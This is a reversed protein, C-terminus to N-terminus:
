GVPQWTPPETNLEDLDSQPLATAQPLEPEEPESQPQPQPTYTKGDTGTVPAPSLKRDGSVEQRITERNTGTASAIARVSMGIERMSAVVEQREERPLRIRSTGVIPAPTDSAKLKSLTGHVTGVSAGTASSIAPISM